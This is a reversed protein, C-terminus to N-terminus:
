PTCAGSAVAVSSPSRWGLFLFNPAGNSQTGVNSAYIIQQNSTPWTQYTPAGTGSPFTTTGSQWAAQVVSWQSATPTWFSLADCFAGGTSLFVSVSLDLEPEIGTSTSTTSFQGAVITNQYNTNSGTPNNYFISSEIRNTAVDGLGQMLTSNGTGGAEAQMMQILVQPPVYVKTSTNAATGGVSGVVSFAGSCSAYTSSVTVNQAFQGSGTANPINLNAACSSYPNEFRSQGFSVTAQVNGPTLTVTIQKTDGTSMNFQTPSQSLSLM